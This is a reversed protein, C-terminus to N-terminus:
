VHRLRLVRHHDLGLHRPHVGSVDVERQMVLSEGELALLPLLLLLLLLM